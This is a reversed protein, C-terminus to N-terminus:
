ICTRDHTLLCSGDRWTSTPVDRNRSAAPKNLGRHVDRCYNVVPRTSSRSGKESQFAKGPLAIKAAAPKKEVRGYGDHISGLM